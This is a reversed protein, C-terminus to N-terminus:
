RPSIEGKSNMLNIFNETIEWDETYMTIVRLNNLMMYEGAENKKILGRLIAGSDLKNCKNVTKVLTPNLKGGKVRLIIRTRKLKRLKNVHKAPYEAPLVIEKLGAFMKKQLLGIVKNSIVEGDEVVLRLDFNRIKMLAKITKPTLADPKMEFIKRKPGLSLALNVLEDTFDKEEVRFTADWTPLVKVRRLQAQKFNVPLVINISKGTAYLKAVLSKPPVSNTDVIFGANEIQGIRKINIDSTEKNIVFLKSVHNLMMTTQEHGTKLVVNKKKKANALSFSITIILAAMIVYRLLVSLNRKM